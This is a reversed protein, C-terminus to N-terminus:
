LVFRWDIGAQVSQHLAEYNREKQMDNQPPLNYLAWIGIRKFIFGTQLGVRFTIRKGSVIEERNFYLRTQKNGAVILGMPTISTYWAIDRKNLWKRGVSFGISFVHGKYMWKDEIRIASNEDVRTAAHSFSYYKLEGSFMNKGFSRQDYETYSLGALPVIKSAYSLTTPYVFQQYPTVKFSNYSGGAIIVLESPYKNRHKKAQTGMATNLFSILDNETYRLRAAEKALKRNNEISLKFLSKLQEVYKKDEFVHDIGTKANHRFVMRFFLETFTDNVRIFYNERKSDRLIYLKVSDENYLRRLFVRITDFTEENGANQVNLYYRNPNTMRRVQMSEYTEYGTIAFGKCTQPTLELISGGQTQFQVKSPNHNWSKFKPFAGNVVEGNNTIYSGPFNNQAVAYLQPVSFVIAACISRYM